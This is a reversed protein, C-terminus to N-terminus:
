LAGGCSKRVNMGADAKDFFLTAGVRRKDISVFDHCICEFGNNGSLALTHDNLEAM